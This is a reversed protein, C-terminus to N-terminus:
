APAGDGVPHIRLQSVIVQLMEPFTFTPNALLAIRVREDHNQQLAWEILTSKGPGIEGVLLMLGGRERFGWQLAALGEYHEASFYLTGPSTTFKFPAGNLGFHRFYAQM